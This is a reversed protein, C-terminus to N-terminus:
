RRRWKSDGAVLRRGEELWWVLMITVVVNGAISGYGDSGGAGGCHGDAVVNKNDTEVAMTKSPIKRRRRVEKPSAM